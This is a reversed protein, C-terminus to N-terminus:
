ELVEIEEDLLAIIEESIDILKDSDIGNVRHLIESTSLYNEFLPDALFSNYDSKKTIPWHTAISYSRFDISSLLRRNSLYKYVLPELYSSNLSARSEQEEMMEEVQQPWQILLQKLRANSIDNIKGTNFLLDLM